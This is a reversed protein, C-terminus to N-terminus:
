VPLNAPPESKKSEIRELTPTEAIASPFHFITALEEVSLVFPKRKYPPYFYSRRRYADFFKRRVLGLRHIGLWKDVEEWPRNFGTGNATKFGNLGSSNFQKFMGTLNPIHGINFKGPKAMYIARIGCDFGVKSMNREIAAINDNQAKTLQPKEPKEGEKLKKKEGQTLKKIFDKGEDRWDGIGGNEKKYRKKHAQVLIQVWVQEDPGISGLFELMPTMPDFRQKEDMYGKNMEYDVYTKIPLPDPETLKFEVGFLSVDHGEGPPSINAYDPAESLEVEPFQSYIRSEIINKYFLQARIFFRVNGGISVIELSFWPPVLGVWWKEYFSGSRAQDLAVLVFEMVQPPKYIEKPLHVELMVWKINALYDTRIYHVWVKWFFFGFVIPAWFVALDSSIYFLNKFSSILLQIYDMFINYCLGGYEKSTLHVRYILKFKICFVRV